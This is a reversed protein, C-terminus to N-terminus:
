LQRSSEAALRAWEQRPTFAVAYRRRSNVSADGESAGLFSQAVLAVDNLAADRLATIM